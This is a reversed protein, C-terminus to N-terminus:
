RCCSLAQTWDRCSIVNCKPSTYFIFLMVFLIKTVDHFMIKLFFVLYRSCMICFSLYLIICTSPPLQIFLIIFYASCRKAVFNELVPIFATWNLQESRMRCPSSKGWCLWGGIPFFVALLLFYFRFELNAFIVLLM